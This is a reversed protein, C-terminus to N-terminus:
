HPRILFSASVGRECAQHVKARAHVCPGDHACSSRGRGGNLAVSPAATVAKIGANAANPAGVAWRLLKKWGFMLTFDNKIPQPQYDM